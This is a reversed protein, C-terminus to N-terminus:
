QPSVAPSSPPTAANPGPRVVLVACPAHQVVREAVSGLWLHKLGSRGHTSMVILDIPHDRAHEVISHWPVGIGISIDFPIGPPITAALTKMQERAAESLNQTYVSTIAAIDGGLYFDGAPMTIPEIIHLLTLHTTFKEALEFAFALTASTGESFDVPVLIHQLNM